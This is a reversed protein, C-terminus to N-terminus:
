GLRAWSLCALAATESRLITNGLDVPVVKKCALLQEVEFKEFGGEPGILFATCSGNPRSCKGLPAANECREICAYVIHELGALAKDLACVSSLLPIDMRECQEVAEIIQARIRAENIKRVESRRTIVPHLASVGLEVAKEVLINMRQKKIPSFYLHAEGNKDKSQADPQHRLLKEVAFSVKKKGTQSLCALWEGQKGNFVRIYDGEQKRLVNCLYHSQATELFVCSNQALNADVYLRPLHTSSNSLTTM